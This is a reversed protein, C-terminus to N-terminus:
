PAVGAVRQGTFQLLLAVFYPSETSIPNLSLGHSHPEGGGGDSTNANANNGTLGAARNVRTNTGTSDQTRALITHAHVATQAESMTHNQATGTPTVTAAGGTSEVDAAGAQTSAKIYPTARLDDTGHRGDPIHWGKRAQREVIQAVRALTTKITRLEGVEVANRRGASVFAM